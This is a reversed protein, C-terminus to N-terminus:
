KQERTIAKSGLFTLLFYGGYIAILVIATFIVPKVYNETVLLDLGIKAFRMGAYSHLCALLLPLLFFIGSQRFISKSIEKEEVGLKRLMTYRAMSDASESLEKLALIAGCSVLFIFGIYLGLFTVVAGIGIANNAAEIKTELGQMSGYNTNSQFWHMVYTWHDRATQEAAERGKKDTANYNGVFYDIGRYKESVADDPVIITGTNSAQMDPYFSSLICKKSGPKFTNGFVTIETGDELLKDYMEPMGAANASVAYEGDGLEIQKQGYLEMIANYDSLKLFSIDFNMMSYISVSGSTLEDKRDGAFTDFTFNSEIYDHFHHYEGFDDYISMNQQAYVDDIDGTRYSSDDSSDHIHLSFRGYFDVPFNDEVGKNLSNRITFATSLTCITVFLMLCIVTMSAITTNIKSSIQRFTFSNLGRHYVGKASMIVRLLMGSVSWFIFFTSVIGALIALGIRKENLHEFDWGVTHYAWVLVAASILFVVVCLWPNKMTIKESRKGSNMLTILRCKSIVFGSRLMVVLYMIGFYLITKTIASASVTFRYNNMDAEFLNAVVASMVQSLGVGILLGVILSGIGIIVTECLLLASIKWKSMGMMMYLAFEKNRRKMLFRSAYVILLGLVVAVFVSVGSIATTLIKIIERQTENVRIFATQTEIANFVYFVAVGLVLTFFYVAYDKISKRINSLSIKFLM